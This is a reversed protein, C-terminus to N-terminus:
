KNKRAKNKGLKIKEKNRHREKKSEKNRQKQTKREKM